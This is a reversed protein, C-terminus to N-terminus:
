TSHLHLISIRSIAVAWFRFTQDAGPLHHLWKRLAIRFISIGRRADECSPCIAFVISEFAVSMGLRLSHREKKDFFLNKPLKRFYFHQLM